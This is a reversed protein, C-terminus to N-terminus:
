DHVGYKDDLRRKVEELSISRGTKLDQMAEDIAQLSDALEADSGVGMMERPIESLKSFKGNATTKRQGGVHNTDSTQTFVFRELRFAILSASVSGSARHQSSHVPM